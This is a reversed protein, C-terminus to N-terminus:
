LFFTKNNFKLMYVENSLAALIECDNCYFIFNWKLEKPLTITGEDTSIAIQDSFICYTENKKCKFSYKM